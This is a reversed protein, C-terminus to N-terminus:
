LLSKLRKALYSMWCSDNGTIKGKVYEDPTGNDEQFKNELVDWENPSILDRIESPVDNCGHRSFEDAARSLWASALKIESLSLGIDQKSAQAVVVSGLTRNLDTIASLVARYEANSSYEDCTFSDLEAHLRTLEKDIADLGTM